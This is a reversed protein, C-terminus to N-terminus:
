TAESSSADPEVVLTLGDVGVVRIAVGAGPCGRRGATWRAPSTSSRAARAAPSAAASGIVFPARGDPTAMVNALPHGSSSSVMIM